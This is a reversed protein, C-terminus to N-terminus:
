GPLGFVEEPESLGRVPHFGLSVLPRPCAAAFAQSVVLPRMVRKSLGELRAALNVAPGIATFDLRDAAGVNGYTVEGLHLGIGIRIETRSEARRRANIRDLDGLAATAADLARVSTSTFDGEDGTPFIALVGDGIFKLVEGGRRQVAGAIADFYDDLLGIVAAGDLQDSLATFNRLDSALIVANLGEGEGRHVRGALIRRAAAAGLYTDLLNVTLRRLVRADVTAALAPTVAELAAIDGDRFGEKRDTTWTAVPWRGFM